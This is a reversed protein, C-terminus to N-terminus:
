TGPRKWAGPWCTASASTIDLRRSLEVPGMPEAMLHEVAWVENLSIGLRDALAPRALAALRLVAQLRAAPAHVGDGPATPDDREGGAGVGRAM